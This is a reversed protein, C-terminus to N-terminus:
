GSTEDASEASWEKMATSIQGLPLELANKTCRNIDDRWSLIGAQLEDLLPQYEMGLAATIRQSLEKVEESPHSLEAYRLGSGDKPLKFGDTFLRLLALNLNKADEEADELHDWIQRTTWYRFLIGLERTLSRDLMLNATLPQSPFTTLLREKVTNVTRSCTFFLYLSRLRIEEPSM